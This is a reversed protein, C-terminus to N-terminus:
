ARATSPRFWPKPGAVPVQALWEPIRDPRLQTLARVAEVIEGVHQVLTAIALGLPLAVLAVLGLTMVAVAWGRRGGLRQELSRMLPWTAVVLLTAWVLAGVFPLLTWLTGAILLGIVVVSLVHRLLDPRPADM